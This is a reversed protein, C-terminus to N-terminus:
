YDFRNWKLTGIFYFIVAAWRFPGEFCLLIANGGGSCGEENWSYKRKQIICILFTIADCTTGSSCYFGSDLIDRSINSCHEEFKAGCIHM